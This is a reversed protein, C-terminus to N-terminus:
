WCILLAVPKVAYVDRCSRNLFSEVCDASYDVPRFTVITENKGSGAKLYHTFFLGLIVPLIIQVVMQVSIGAVDLPEGSGSLILGMLFPTVLIGIMGSISANFIAGPINGGAMSVMVVSSSVTSPLVALYFVAIWYVEYETGKLLPYFPSVLLPFLM